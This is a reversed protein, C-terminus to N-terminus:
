LLQRTQANYEPPMQEEWYGFGEYVQRLLRMACEDPYDRLDSWPILILTTYLIAGGEYRGSQPEVDRRFFVSQPSGARLRWGDIGFLALTGHVKTQDTLEDLRFEKYVAAAIRFASVPYELLPYPHIEKEQNGWQLWSLPVEFFIA